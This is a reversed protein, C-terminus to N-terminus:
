MTYELEQLESYGRPIKAGQPLDFEIGFTGKYREGGYQVVRVDSRELTPFGKEAQAFLRDFHSLGKEYTDTRLVVFNRCFEKIVKM